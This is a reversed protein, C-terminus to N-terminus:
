QRVRKTNLELLCSAPFGFVSYEVDTFYKEIYEYTGDSFYMCVKYEFVPESPKIRYHKISNKITVVDAYSGRGDDYQLTAGKPICVNSDFFKDLIERASLWGTSHEFKRYLDEKTM